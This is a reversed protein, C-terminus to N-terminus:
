GFTHALERIYDLAEDLSSTPVGIQRGDRDCACLQELEEFNESQQLRRRARV